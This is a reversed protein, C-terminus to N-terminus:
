QRDRPCPGRAGPQRGDIMRGKKRPADHRNVGALLLVCHLDDDSPEYFTPRAM